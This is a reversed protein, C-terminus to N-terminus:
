FAPRLGIAPLTKLVGVAIASSVWVLAPALMGPNTSAGLCPQNRSLRRGDWYLTNIM